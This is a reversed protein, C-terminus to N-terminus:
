GVNSMDNKSTHLVESKSQLCSGNELLHQANPPSSTFLRFHCYPYREVSEEEHFVHQAIINLILLHFM